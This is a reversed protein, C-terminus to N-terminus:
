KVVFPDDPELPHTPKLGKAFATTYPNTGDLENAQFENPWYQAPLMKPTKDGTKPYYWARVSWGCPVGVFVVRASQGVSLPAAGHLRGEPRFWSGYHSRLALAGAAPAKDTTDVTVSCKGICNKDAVTVNQSTLSGANVYTNGSLRQLQVDVRLVEGEMAATDAYPLTVALTFPGSRFAPTFVQRLLVDKGKDNKFYIGVDLRNNSYTSSGTVAVTTVDKCAAISHISVGASSPAAAVPLAGLMGALLGIVLLLRAIRM